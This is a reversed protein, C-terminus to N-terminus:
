VMSYGCGADYFMGGGSEWQLHTVSSLVTTCRQRLVVAPHLRQLRQRYHLLLQILLLIVRGVPSCPDKPLPMLYAGCM